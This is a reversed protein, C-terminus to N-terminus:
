RGTPPKQGAAERLFHATEEPFAANVWMGSGFELGGPVVLRPTVQFHWLFYAEAQEGPPATQLTLNYDFWGLGTRLLAMTRRVAAGAAALGADSVAGFSAQPALPMIWTEFPWRSAYPQFAVFGDAEFLVRRAAQREADRVEHYLNGGTERYHKEAVDFRRGLLPPEVPSGIIQTHPHALSAGAREGHNKFLAVAVIERRATLARYRRHLAEMWLAAEAERRDALDRDHHPTDIVVEHTGLGTVSVFRGDSLHKRPQESPALAPFANAVVRVAWGQPDGPAALRDLEQTGHREGGPCFPCAAPEGGPPPAPEGERFDSPRQAREASFAIWEKTTADERLEPM